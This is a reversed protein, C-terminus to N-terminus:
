GEELEHPSPPPPFGVNAEKGRKEEGMKKPFPIRKLGGWKPFAIEVSVLDRKKKKKEIGGICINAAERFSDSTSTRPRIDKRPLSKCVFRVIRSISYNTGIM